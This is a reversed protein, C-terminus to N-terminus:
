IPYIREIYKHLKRQTTKKRFLEFKNNNINKNSSAVSVKVTDTYGVSLILINPMRIVIITIIKYNKVNYTIYLNIKLIRILIRFAFKM